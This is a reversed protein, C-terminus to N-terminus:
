MWEFVCVRVRTHALVWWSEYGWVRLSVPSYIGRVWCRETEACLWTFVNSIARTREYCGASKWHPSGHLVLALLGCFCMLAFYSCFRQLWLCYRGSQSPVPPPSFPLGYFFCLMDDHKLCPLVNLILRPQSWRRFSLMDKQLQPWFPSYNKKKKKNWHWKQRLVSLLLWCFSFSTLSIFISCKM